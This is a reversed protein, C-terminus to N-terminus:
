AGSTAGAITPDVMARVQAPTLHLLVGIARYDDPLAPDDWGNASHRALDVALMVNRVRPNSQAHDDMMSILLEPLHWKRVLDGHLANLAVGLVTEQATVSRLTSDQRQMREIDLMRDPAFCWMLMETIDHLLAALMVEGAELDNRRAAWAAAWDAADNARRVVKMLGKLAIPMHALHDEVSKLNEFTRFFPPVGMMVITGEVSLIDTIQRRGRHSAYWALLKATMLPDQMVVIAVDRPSVDDVNAALARIREITISEVPIDASAILRTWAALDAPRHDTM